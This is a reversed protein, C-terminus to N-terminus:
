VLKEGEMGKPHRECLNSWNKALLASVAIYANVENNRLFIMEEHYSTKDM